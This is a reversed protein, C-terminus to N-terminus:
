DVRPSYFDGYVCVKITITCLLTKYSQTSLIFSVTANGLM